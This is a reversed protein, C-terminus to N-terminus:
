LSDLWFLSCMVLFFSYLFIKLKLFIIHVYKTEYEVVGNKERKGVILEVDADFDEESDSDSEGEEEEEEDSSHEEEEKKEKKEKKEKDKPSAEEKTEKKEKKEDKEKEKEKDKPSAEEKTEEKKEESSMILYLALECCCLFVFLTFRALVCSKRQVEFTPRLATRARLVRGPVCGVCVRLM